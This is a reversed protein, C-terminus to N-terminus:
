TKMNSVSRIPATRNTVELLRLLDGHSALYFVITIFLVLATLWSTSHTTTLSIIKTADRLTSVM